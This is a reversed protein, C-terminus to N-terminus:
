EKRCLLRYQLTLGRMSTRGVWTRHWGVPYPFILAFSIFSISRFSCKQESNGIPMNIASNSPQPGRDELGYVTTSSDFVLGSAGLGQFARPMAYRLTYRQDVYFPMGCSLGRPLHRGTRGTVAMITYRAYNLHMRLPM